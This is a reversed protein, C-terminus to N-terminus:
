EDRQELGFLWKVLGVMGEVVQEGKEKESM